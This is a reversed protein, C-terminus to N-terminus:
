SSPSHPGLTFLLRGLSASCQALESSRRASFRASAARRRPRPSRPPGSEDSDGEEAAKLETTPSPAAAASAPTASPSTQSPSPADRDIASEFERCQQPAWLKIMAVSGQRSVEVDAPERVEPVEPLRLDCRDCKCDPPHDLLNMSSPYIVTSKSGYKGQVEVAAVDKGIGKGRLLLSMPQHRNNQMAENDHTTTRRAKDRTEAIYKAV